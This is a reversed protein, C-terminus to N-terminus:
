PNWWFRGPGGACAWAVGLGLNGELGTWDWLLLREEITGVPVQGWIGVKNGRQAETEGDSWLSNQRGARVKSSSMIRGSVSGQAKIGSRVASGM